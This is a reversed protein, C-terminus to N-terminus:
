PARPLGWLSRSRGGFGASSRSDRPESSGKWPHLHGPGSAPPPPDQPERGRGGTRGLLTGEAGMAWGQHPRQCGVTHTLEPTAAQDMEPMQSGMHPAWHSGPTEWSPPGRIGGWQLAERHTLDRAGPSLCWHVCSVGMQRGEEGALDQGFRDSVQAGGMAVGVM